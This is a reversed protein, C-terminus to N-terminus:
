AATCGRQGRFLPVGDLYDFVRNMFRDGLTAESPPRHLRLGDLFEVDRELFSTFLWAAVRAKLLGPGNPPAEVGAVGRITTGGPAPVMSLM